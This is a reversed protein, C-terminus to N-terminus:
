GKVGTIVIGQVMYRQTIFFIVLLPLMSFLSAAMLAQIRTRLDDQFMRLGVSIPFKRVDKVYLLPRLFEGWLSTFQFILVVGIAPLSLPVHIRWFLTWPNCGDIRASDDIEVPMTMIFQRILFVHFAPGLYTPVILPKYSGTWGITLFLLYTPVLTVHQPLLMTSLLLGFLVKRGPFRLRAFGFGVFASSLAAGLGGVAAIVFSNWMWGQLTWKYGGEFAEKLGGLFLGEPIWEVPLRWIQFTPMFATRIMWYFPLGFAVAGCIVTVYLAVRYTVRGLWYIRSHRVARGKIM